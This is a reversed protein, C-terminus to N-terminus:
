YDKSACTASCVPTGSTGSSCCLFATQRAGQGPVWSLQAIPPSSKASEILDNVTKIDHPIAVGDSMAPPTALLYVNQRPIGSAQASALAIHLLRPSTFIASAKVALLQHTLENQTYTASINNAV